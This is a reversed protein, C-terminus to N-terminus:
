TAMSRSPFGLGIVIQDALAEAWLAYGHPGPHFGDEAMLAAAEHQLAAPLPVLLRGPQGALRRWRRM